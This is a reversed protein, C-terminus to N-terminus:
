TMMVELMSNYHLYISASSAVVDGIQCISVTHRDPPRDTLAKDRQSVLLGAARMCVTQLPAYRMGDKTSLLHPLSLALM